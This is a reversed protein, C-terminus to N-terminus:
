DAALGNPLGSANSDTDALPAAQSGKKADAVGTTEIATCPKKSRGRGNHHHYRCSDSCFRKNLREGKLDAGCTPCVRRRPINPPLCEGREHREIAERLAKPGRYDASVMVM